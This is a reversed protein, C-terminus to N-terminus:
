APRVMARLLEVQTTSKEGLRALVVEDTTGAVVLHHIFVPRTQGQRHLRGCAQIYQGLSAPLTFWVAISGGHQLNLGAGCSDPHALAVKQLGANWRDVDLLEAGTAAQIREIEHRYGYFVLVPNGNAGEIVDQLGALKVNSFVHVAKDEDYIAGGSLQHLKGWLVAANAATIPEGNSIPLLADRRLQEYVRLEGPLTEVV